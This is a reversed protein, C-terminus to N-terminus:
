KMIEWLSEVQLDTILGVHPSVTSGSELIQYGSAKEGGEPSPCCLLIQYLVFFCPMESKLNTNERASFSPHHISQCSCPKHFAERLCAEGFCGSAEQMVFKRFILNVIRRCLLIWAVVSVQLEVLILLTQKKCILSYIVRSIIVVLLNQLIKTILYSDAMQEKQQIQGMLVRDNM